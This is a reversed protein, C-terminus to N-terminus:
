QFQTGIWDHLAQNVTLKFNGCIRISKKDSKLVPVIPAAWEAFQVPELIGLQVLRNLEEEVLTQMAYPVTRAKSFKPQASPDVYIKAQFGNLTGLGDQFVESHEELMQDLTDEHVQFIEKWWLTIKKLWDRGLLSPGKGSVVLLPLQKHQDGYTVNVDIRGKM